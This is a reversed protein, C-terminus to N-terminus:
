FLDNSFLDSRAHLIVRSGTISDSCLLDGGKPGEQANLSYLFPTENSLNHSM